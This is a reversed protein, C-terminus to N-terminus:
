KREIRTVSSYNPFDATAKRDLDIEEVLKKVADQHNAKDIDGPSIMNVPTPPPPADLLVPPPVGDIAIRANPNTKSPRMTAPAADEGLLPGTARFSMCGVMPVVAVLGLLFKRM